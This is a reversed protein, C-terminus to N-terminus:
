LYNLAKGNASLEQIAQKVQKYDLKDYKIFPALYTDFNSFAQAGNAEGQLTYFFNVAQGLATRLHRAPKCAIKGAVGKFGILLLDKLDWGCCYVALLDLDHIHIDGSKEADRAPKSYIKNLWYNKQVTSSIYSNLGQLSFAMNANERVQWDLEGIYNNILEDADILSKIDRIRNHLDRYLIYAKATKAHGEEILVKEVIDQIQEVDPILDTGFRKNLELVVLETVHEARARDRGGVSKAAKFVAQAINSKNFALIKGSRKKVKKVLAVVKKKPIVEEKKQVKPM